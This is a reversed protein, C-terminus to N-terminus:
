FRFELVVFGLFCFLIFLKELYKSVRRFIIWVWVWAIKCFVGIVERDVFDRGRLCVGCCM